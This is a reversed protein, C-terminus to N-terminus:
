VFIQEVKIYTSDSVCGINKKSIIETIQSDNEFIKNAELCDLIAKFFNDLDRKRKSKCNVILTLKLDGELTDIMKDAVSENFKEIFERYRKSKIVRKNYSRYCCNVSPPLYELTIEFM